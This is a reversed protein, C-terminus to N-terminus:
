RSGFSRVGMIPLAMFVLGGGVSAWLYFQITKKVPGLAMSVIGAGLLHLVTDVPVSGGKGVRIGELRTGVASELGRLAMKLVMKCAWRVIGHGSVEGLVGDAGTRFRQQVEDVRVTKLGRLNTTVTRLLGDLVEEVAQFRRLMFAFLSVSLCTIFFVAPFYLLAFSILLARLLAPASFSRIFVLAPVFGCLTAAIHLHLTTRIQTRLSARLSNASATISYSRTM